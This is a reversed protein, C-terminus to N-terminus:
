GGRRPRLPTRMPAEQEHFSLCLSSIQGSNPVFILKLKIYLEYGAFEASFKWVEGAPKSSDHDPDPGDSYNKHSLGEVVQTLDSRIFGTDGLFAKNKPREDKFDIGHLDAAQLFRELFARVESESANGTGMSYGDISLDALHM